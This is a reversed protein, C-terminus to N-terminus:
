RMGKGSAIQQVRAQLPAPLQEVTPYVAEDGAGTENPLTALATLLGRAELQVQHRAKCPCREVTKQGETGVLTRYGRQDECDACGAYVHLALQRRRARESALLIEPATPMFTIGELVLAELAAAMLGPPVAKLIRHYARFTPVDMQVRLGLALPTLLATCESLTM